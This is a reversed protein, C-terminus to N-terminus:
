LRGQVFWRAEAGFGSRCVWLRVGSALEVRYYDRGPRDPRARWWEPEIREPGEAARVRHGVKGIRLLSPPADPLLAMAGVELPRRLLRVPRVSRPWGQPVLVTATPPVRTVEREPWHSEAPALRWVQVRQALRDFLRALDETEFMNGGARAGSAGRVFGGQLGTMAETAEAGLVIRDFGFGPELKELKQEFLRGLHAPDRAALGTGVAVEQVAGDVRHARLVVRRAGRGAEELKRCLARLLAAVAIDIAERTILPELFERAASFDPPPRIPSIPASVEGAAEELARLTAAGFRRALPGRPQRRVEGVRRLGMRSLATVVEPAIPLVSLPLHEVAAAEEGPPVIGSAGSRALALATGPAGAIVGCATFGLRGLGEVVRRLLAAEGGFLHTAGTIDLILAPGATAVLPSFRLAWLALRELLAAEAGADEEVARAEPAIAQADSLAQGARVGEVGGVAVVERRAGVGRWVLVPGCPGLREVALRPLALALHRRPTAHTTQLPVSDGQV